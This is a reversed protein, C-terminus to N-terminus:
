KRKNVVYYKRAPISYVEDNKRIKFDWFFLVTPHVRNKGKKMYGYSISMSDTNQNTLHINHYSDKLVFHIKGSVIENILTDSISLKFPDIIVDIPISDTNEYGKINIKVNMTKEPYLEGHTPVYGHHIIVYEYPKISVTDRRINYGKSVLNKYLRSQACSLMLVTVLLLWKM